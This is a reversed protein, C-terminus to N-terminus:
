PCISLIRLITAFLSKPKYLSSDSINAGTTEDQAIEEDQNERNLVRLRIVGTEDTFVEKGCVLCKTDSVLTHPAPQKMGGIGIFAESEVPTRDYIMKVALFCPHQNPCVIVDWPKALLNGLKVSKKTTKMM